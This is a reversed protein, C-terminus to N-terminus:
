DRGGHPLKRGDHTETTQWSFQNIAVENDVPEMRLVQGIHDDNPIVVLTLADVFEEKGDNDM